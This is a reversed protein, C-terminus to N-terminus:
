STCSRRQWLQCARAPDAVEAVDAARVLLDADLQLPLRPHVVQTGQSQCHPLHQMEYDVNVTPRTRVYESGIPCVRRVTIM